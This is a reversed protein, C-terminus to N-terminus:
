VLNCLNQNKESKQPAGAIKAADGIKVCSEFCPADEHPPAGHAAKPAHGCVPSEEGRTVVLM